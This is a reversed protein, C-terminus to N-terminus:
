LPRRVSGGEDSRLGRDPRYREATVKTVFGDVGLNMWLGEFTEQIATVISSKGSRPAGNLIVIQSPKTSHVVDRLSGAGSRGVGTTRVRALSALEAARCPARQFSRADRPPGEGYREPGDWRSGREILVAISDHGAHTRRARHVDGHRGLHTRGDAGM